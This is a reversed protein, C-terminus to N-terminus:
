NFCKWSGLDKECGEIDSTIFHVMQCSDHRYNRHIIAVIIEKM